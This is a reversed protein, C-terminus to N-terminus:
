EPRPALDQSFASMSFLSVVDAETLEYSRQVHAGNVVISLAEDAPIKLFELVSAISTSSPVRLAFSPRKGYKRLEGYLNVTVEM